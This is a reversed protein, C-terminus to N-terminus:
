EVSLKLVDGDKSISYTLKISAAPRELAKGLVVYLRPDNNLFNRIADAKEEATNGHGVFRIQYSKNEGVARQARIVKDITELSLSGEYGFYTFYNYKDSNCEPIDFYNEIPNGNPLAFSHDRSFIEWSCNFYNHLAEGAELGVPDDWTLDVMYWKGDLLVANWSHNEGSYGVLMTSLIGCRCLLYQFLKAYGDCVSTGNVLNGYASHTMPAKYTEDYVARSVIADHLYLEKEFDTMSSSVGALIEDAADRFATKAKEFDSVSVLYSLDITKITGTVKDYSVEYTAVLWFYEPCDISVCHFILALEDRTLKEGITVKDKREGIGASLKNYARLYVQSNALSALYRYGYRETVPLESLTSEEMHCLACVRTDSGPITEFQHALAPTVETRTFDCATCEYLIYGSHECTAEVSEKLTLTHHAEEGLTEGCEACVKWHKEEDYEYRYTHAHLLASCSSLLSVLILLCVLSLVRHKWLKM